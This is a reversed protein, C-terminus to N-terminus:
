GQEAVGVQEERCCDGELEFVLSCRRQGVGFGSIDAGWLRKWRNLVDYHWPTLRPDGLATLTNWVVLCSLMSLCSATETKPALSGVEFGIGGIPWNVEM